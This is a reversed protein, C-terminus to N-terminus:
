SHMKLFDRREQLYKQTEIKNKFRKVHMSQSDQRYNWTPKPNYIFVDGISKYVRFWLDWYAYNNLDVNFPLFGEVINKRIMACDAVFNGQKHKDYDYDHFLQRGTFKGNVDCYNYASYCVDKNNDNCMRTELLCKFPLAVDNSSAFCFFDGTMHPLANNLQLFSGKPSKIGKSSPHQSRPMTILKIRQDNQERMKLHPLNKDGEVTSIILEILVGRQDLYSQIALNLYNIDENLTNMIVSVKVMKFVHKNNLDM